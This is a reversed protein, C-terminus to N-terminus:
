IYECKDKCFLSSYDLKSSINKNGGHVYIKPQTDSTNEVM